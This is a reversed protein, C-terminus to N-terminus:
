GTRTFVEYLSPSIDSVTEGHPPNGLPSKHDHPKVYGVDGLHHDHGLSQYIEHGLPGLSVLRLGRDDLLVPVHIEIAGEGEVPGPSTDYQDGRLSIPEEVYNSHAEV